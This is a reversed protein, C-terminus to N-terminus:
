SEMAADPPLTRLLRVFEEVHLTEPRRSLDVGSTAQMRDLEVGELAYFKKLTNRLVKRRENFVSRVLRVFATREDWALAAGQRRPLIRLLASEVRPPPTFAGPKIRMELRLDYYAGLVVSLIGRERSGAPSVVREAVERQVMFTASALRAGLELVGFLVRSTLQYPLNGCLKVRDVSYEAGLTAVDVQSLDAHILRFRDCGGLEVQLVSALHDDLEIAVVRAGADLFRQTLVGLGAGYEVVLENTAPAVLTVIRDLINLDILFHQGLEKRPRSGHRQLRELVPNKM